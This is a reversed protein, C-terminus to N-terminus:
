FLDFGVGVLIGLLGCMGKMQNKLL